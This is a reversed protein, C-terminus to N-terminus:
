ESRVMVVCAICIFSTLLGTNITYVIVWNLISYTGHNSNTLICQTICDLEFCWCVPRCGRVVYSVPLLLTDTCDGYRDRHRIRIFFVPCAPSLIRSLMLVSPDRGCFCECEGPGLRSYAETSLKGHTRLRPYLTTSVSHCVIKRHGSHRISRWWPGILQSM